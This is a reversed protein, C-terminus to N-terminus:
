KQNFKFLCGKGLDWKGQLTQFTSAKIEEKGQPWGTPAATSWMVYHSSKKTSLSSHPPIPELFPKSEMKLTATSQELLYRIEGALSLFISNLFRKFIPKRSPETTFLGGALASSALSAPKIGSGPLDWM